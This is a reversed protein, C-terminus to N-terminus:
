QATQWLSTYVGSSIPFHLQLLLFGRYLVPLQAKQRATRLGAEPPTALSLPPVRDRLLCHGSSSPWSTASVEGSPMWSRLILTKSSSSVKSTRWNLGKVPWASSSRFLNWYNQGFDCLWSSAGELDIGSMDVNRLDEWRWDLLEAQIQSSWQTYPYRRMVMETKKFKDPHRQCVVNYSNFTYLM